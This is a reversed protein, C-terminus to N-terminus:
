NNNETSNEDSEGKQIFKGFSSVKYIEKMKELAWKIEQKYNEKNIVYINPVNQPVTDNKRKISGVTHKKLIGFDVLDKMCRNLTDHSLSTDKSMGKLDRYFAEPRQYSMDAYKESGDSNKEREFIYSRVYLFALLINEKNISSESMMITDFTSSVLKVFNDPTDFNETIIKIEIGTEYTISDLDQKVEIMHNNIMYELVDLIEKFVKPKRKTTKYGYCEM